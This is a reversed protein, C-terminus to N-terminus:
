CCFLQEKKKKNEKKKEKIKNKPHKKEKKNEERSTGVVQDTLIRIGLGPSTTAALVAAAAWLHQPDRAVAILLRCSIKFDPLSFM